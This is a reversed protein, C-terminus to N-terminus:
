IKLLKKDDNAGCQPLSGRLISTSGHVVLLLEQNQREGEQQQRAAPTKQVAAAEKLGDAGQVRQASIDVTEGRVGVQGEKQDLKQRHHQGGDGAVEDGRRPADQEAGPGREQEGKGGHHAAGEQGEPQGPEQPPVEGVPEDAPLQRLFVLADQAGLGGDKKGQGKEEGEKGVVDQADQGSQGVEGKSAESQDDQQGPGPSQEEGVGQAVDRQDQRGPPDDEDGQQSQGQEQQAQFVPVPHLRQKEPAESLPLRVIPFRM